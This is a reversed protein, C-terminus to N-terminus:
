SAFLKYFNVTVTDKVVGTAHTYIFYAGIVVIFNNSRHLLLYESIVDVTYGQAIGNVDMKICLIDKIVKNRKIHLFSFSICEKINQIALSDPETFNSKKKGFSWIKMLPLVVIDFLSGSKRSIKLSKKVVKLFHKNVKPRHSSM